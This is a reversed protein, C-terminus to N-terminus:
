REMTKVGDGYIDPALASIAAQAAQVDDGAKPSKGPFWDLNWTVVRLPSAACLDVALFLLCLIRIMGPSM